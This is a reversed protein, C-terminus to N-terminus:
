LVRRDFSGVHAIDVLRELLEIDEEDCVLSRVDKLVNVRKVEESTDDRIEALACLLFFDRLILKFEHACKIFDDAQSITFRDIQGLYAAHELHLTVFFFDLFDDGSYTSLRIMYSVLPSM